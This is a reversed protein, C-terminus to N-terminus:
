DRLRPPQCRVVIVVQGPFSIRYHFRSTSFRHSRNQIYSVAEMDKLTAYKPERFKEPSSYERQKMHLGDAKRTAFQYVLISTGFVATLVKSTPWGKSRPKTKATVDQAKSSNWRCKPASNKACLPSAIPRPSALFRGGTPKAGAAMPLLKVPRMCVSM